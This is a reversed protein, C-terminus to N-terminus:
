ATIEVIVGNEAWEYLQRINENSLIICGFSVRSGLSNMWVVPSGNRTPLGHFGNVFNQGPIPRYLGLFYPMNLDWNAAYADPVHSIIQYIGTWTPSDDIGTSSLWDWKLQVNEYVRTRQERLSVVIRKHPVVPFEMFHDASPITIQQGVSLGNASGPNAAQIWPYPVGYNWAISIITEGLQVTHVSDQHYIRVDGQTRQQSLASQLTNVVEDLNLYRPLGLSASLEHLHAYLPPVDLALQLQNPDQPHPNAILWAAWTEPAISWDVRHDDIPDYANLQLPQALVQTASALLPSADTVQPPVERMPLTFVGEAILPAPNDALLAMLADQDLTRGAEAETAQVQGANLRIGANVPSLGVQEALAHLGDTATPLDVTIVPAVHVTGFLGRLFDGEGRGQAYAQSVTADIDIYIGLAQPNVEWSRSQDQLELSTWHTRLQEAAETQSLGGLPIHAVQVGPLVGDAYILMLGFSLATCTTMFLVFGALLPLWLWLRRKPKPASQPRPRVPQHRRPMPLTTQALPPAVRRIGRVPQTLDSQAQPHQM